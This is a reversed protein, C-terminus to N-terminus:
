VTSNDVSDVELIQSMRELSLVVEGQCAVAGGAMGTRGGSPVIPYGHEYCHGVLQSVESTTKPLVVLQPCPKHMRAWDRGYAELDSEGQKVYAAGVIKKFFDFSADTIKM